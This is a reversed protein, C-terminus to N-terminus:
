SLCLKWKRVSCSKTCVNLMWISRTHICEPNSPYLNWYLAKASNLHFIPGVSSFIQWVMVNWCGAGPSDLLSPVCTVGAGAFIESIDPGTLIKVWSWMYYTLICSCPWLVKVDSQASQWFGRIEGWIVKLKLTMDALTPVSHFTPFWFKDVTETRHESHWVTVM